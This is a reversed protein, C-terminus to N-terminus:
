FESEWYYLAKAYANCYEAMDALNREDFVRSNKDDGKDDLEMFEHLNLITQLVARPKHRTEIAASINNVIFDKMQDSFIGWITLFAVNYLEQAIPSYVEAM